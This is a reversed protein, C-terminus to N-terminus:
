ASYLQYLQWHCSIYYITLPVCISPLHDAVKGGYFYCIYGLSSFYQHVRFGNQDHYQFAIDTRYLLQVVIMCCTYLWHVSQVTGDLERIYSKYSATFMVVKYTCMTVYQRVLESKIVLYVSMNRIYSSDYPNVDPLHPTGSYM